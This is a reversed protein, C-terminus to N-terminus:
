CLQYFIPEINQPLAEDKFLVYLESLKQEPLVEFASCDQLFMEYVNRPSKLFDRKGINSSQPITHKHSSSDNTAHSTSTSPTPDLLLLLRLYFFNIENDNFTSDTM